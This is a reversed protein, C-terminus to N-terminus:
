TFVLINKASPSSLWKPFVSIKGSPCILTCAGGLHFLCALQLAM